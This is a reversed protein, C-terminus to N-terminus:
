APRFGMNLLMADVAPVGTSRISPDNGTHNKRILAGATAVQKPLDTQVGLTQAITDQLEEATEGDADNDQAAQQGGAAPAGATGAQQGGAPKGAGAPNHQAVSAALTLKKWLDKQASASDNAPDVIQKILEDIKDANQLRSYQMGSLLNQQVFAKLASEYGPLLTAPTLGEKLGSKRATQIQQVFSFLKQAETGALKTLAVQLEPVTMAPGAVSAKAGRYATGARAPIGAIAGATAGAGTAIAGPAAKIANMGAKAVKNYEKGVAKALAPAQQVGQKALQGAAALGPKVAQYAATAPRGITQYGLEKAAGGVATAAGAVKDGTRALGKAFNQAGTKVATAGRQIDKWGLENLQGPALTAAPAVGPEPKKLANMTAAPGVKQSLIKAVANLQPNSLSQITSYLDQAKVSPQRTATKKQQGAPAAATAATPQVGAQAAPAAGKGPMTYQGGQSKAWQVSYNQWARETKDALMSITQDARGSKYSQSADKFPSAIASGVNKVGSVAKGAAGGLASGLGEDLRTQTLEHIQM